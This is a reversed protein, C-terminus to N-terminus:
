ESPDAFAVQFKMSVSSFCGFHCKPLLTDVPLASCFFADLPEGVSAPLARFVLLLEGLPDTSYVVRGTRWHRFFRVFVKRGQRKPM